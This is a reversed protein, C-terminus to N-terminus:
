DNQFSPRFLSCGLTYMCLQFLIVFAHLLLKLLKIPPPLSLLCFLAHRCCWQSNPATILQMCTLYPPVCIGYRLPSGILLSPPTPNSGANHRRRVAQRRFTSRERRVTVAEENAQAAADLYVLDFQVESWYHKCWGINKGCITREGAFWNIM